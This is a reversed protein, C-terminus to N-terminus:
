LLVVFMVFILSASTYIKSLLSIFRECFCFLYYVVFKSLLSLTTANSESGKVVQNVNAPNLHPVAKTEGLTVDMQTFKSSILNKFVLSAGKEYSRHEVVKMVTGNDRFFQADIQEDIKEDSKQAVAASPQSAVATSPQPSAPSSHLEAESDSDSCAAHTHEFGGGAPRLKSALM